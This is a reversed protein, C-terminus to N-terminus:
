RILELLPRLTPARNKVM